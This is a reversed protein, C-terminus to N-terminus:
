SEWESAEVLLYSARLAMSSQGGRRASNLVLVEAEEIVAARAMLIDMRSREGAIALLAMGCEAPLRGAGGFTAKVVCLGVEWEFPAMRQHVALFAVACLVEAGKHRMRAAQIAVLIPVFPLEGGSFTAFAGAAM